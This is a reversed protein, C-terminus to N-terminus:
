RQGWPVYPTDSSLLLFVGHAVAHAGPVTYVDTNWLRWAADEWGPFIVNEYRALKLIGWLLAMPTDRSGPAAAPDVGHTNLENAMNDIMAVAYPRYKLALATDGRDRLAVYSELMAWANMSHYWPAANHGDWTRGPVRAADFELDAFRTTGGDVIGDSDHDMLPAHVLNLELLNLMAERYTFDGSAAYAQALMWVLKATYNHNHVAPQEAAWDAALLASARWQARRAEDEDEISAEMMLASVWGQDYAAGGIDGYHELDGSAPDAGTLFVHDVMAFETGAYRGADYTVFAEPANAYLEEANEIVVGDDGPTSKDPVWGYGFMGFPVFTGNVTVPPDPATRPAYQTDHYAELTPLLDPTGDVGAQRAYYTGLAIPALTRGIPPDVIQESLYSEIQGSYLDSWREAVEQFTPKRPPADVRLYPEDPCGMETGRASRAAAIEAEAVARDGNYMAVLIEGTRGGYGSRCAATPTGPEGGGMTPAACGTALLLSLLFWAGPFPRVLSARSIVFHM